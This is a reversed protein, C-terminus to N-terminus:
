KAIASALQAATVPESFKARIIGKADVVYTEPVGTIGLPATLAGKADIGVHTYPSGHQSLMATINEPSDMWGIGIIAVEPFQKRFALLEPHETLCPVCWSAFINVIAVRGKMAEQSLSNGKLDVTEFAPFPKDLLANKAPPKALILALGLASCLVVFVLLPIFRKV